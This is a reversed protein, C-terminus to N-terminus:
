QKKIRQLERNIASIAANKDIEHRSPLLPSNLLAQPTQDGLMVFMASTLSMGTLSSFADCLLQKAQANKAIQGVTDEVSYCDKNIPRNSTDLAKGDFWNKVTGNAKAGRFTFSEPISSSFEFIASDSVGDATATLTNLGKQLPVSTFLFVHTGDKEAIREGNCYLRVHAANSYVKVNVTATSRRYYRKECIHVFLVTSWYAKYLYFADKKIKRDFSVLGKNNRGKVGGEDRLASGFDFMNWVYSSWIWPRSELLKLMHEHYLCQYEESYDGAHPEDSHYSIIGECGYESLGITTQPYKNHFEDIWRDNDSLEGMYWGFYHNYSLLDTIHNLPSDMPESTVQALTTPRTSDLEHALAHLEGLRAALADGTGGVTIENSIGWFCVSPHERCQVILERLQSRANQQAAASKLLKSIYPIEAWVILGYTDCLDYFESAHQYHSLRVTNAGLERILEIDQKHDKDTLANGVGLKDEHRAVGRLPTPEGNLYFGRQPDINFCRFGHRTSVSDLVENNRILEAELTYLAPARVGHWLKIDSLQLRIDPSSASRYATTVTEGSPSILTYRVTDTDKPSIIHAQVTLIADGRLEYGIDNDIYCKKISTIESSLSVGNEAYEELAFHTTPVSMLRVKRHIGGYFTFDALQPYIDDNAQNSVKVAIDNNGTLLKNTIDVVFASYGGKHYAAETGNLYVTCDYAAADFRLFYKREEEPIVYLKRFYYGCGRSYGDAGNQGDNANWTHPLEIREADKPPTTPFETQPQKTFSWADNLETTQRM